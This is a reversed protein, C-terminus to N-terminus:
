LPRALEFDALWRHYSGDELRLDYFITNPVVKAIQVITGVKIKPPHGYNNTIKAYDGFELTNKTIVPELESGAFWTHLEGDPLKVAFLDGYYPTIITAYAGMKVEPPHMVLSVVKEGPQFYTIASHSNETIVV